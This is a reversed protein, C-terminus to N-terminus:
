AGTALTSFRLTATGVGTKLFPSGNPQKVNFGFLYEIM